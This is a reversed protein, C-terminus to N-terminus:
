ELAEVAENVGKFGLLEAQRIGVNALRKGLDAMAVNVVAVQGLDMGPYELLGKFFQSSDKRTVTVAVTVDFKDEPKAM